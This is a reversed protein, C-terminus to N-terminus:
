SLQGDQQPHLVSVAFGSLPPSHILAALFEKESSSPRYGLRLESDCAFVRFCV